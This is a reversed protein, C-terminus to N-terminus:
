DNMRIQASVQGNWLCGETKRLIFGNRDYEILAESAQAFRHIGLSVALSLIYWEGKRRESQFWDQSIECYVLLFFHGSGLVVLIM